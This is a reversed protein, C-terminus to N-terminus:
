SLVTIVIIKAPTISAPLFPLLEEAFDSQAYPSSKFISSNTGESMASIVIPTEANTSNDIVDTKEAFKAIRADTLTSESGTTILTNININNKPFLELGGATQFYLDSLNLTLPSNKSFYESNINIWPYYKKVSGDAFSIEQSLKKDGVILDEAYQIGWNKLLININSGKESTIGKSVNEIESYPDILFLVNGGRMLFQDLAYMSSAPLESTSAVILSDIELPIEPINASIEVINYDQRLLKIFTWDKDAKRGRYSTDIMKIDQSIVGINKKTFTSLSSIARTLDNELYNQRMNDFYPITYSKGETNTMVAGFYNTIKGEGTSIKKLGFKIADEEISTYPEPNLLNIKIKNGSINRYRDLTHLVMQAYQSYLPYDKSISSSYYVNVTIPHPLNKLIEVTQPRLTYRKNKTLDLKHNSFLLGSAANLAVFSAILLFVFLVLSLNKKINRLKIPHIKM